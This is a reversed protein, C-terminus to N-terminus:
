FPWEVWERSRGDKFIMINLYISDICFINWLYNKLVESFHLGPIWVLKSQNNMSVVWPFRFNSSMIGIKRIKLVTSWSILYNMWTRVALSHRVFSRFLHKVLSSICIALLHLFLHEVECADLLHLNFGYHSAIVCVGFHSFVNKLQFDIIPLSASYCSNEFGASPTYVPVVVKLLQKTTDALIQGYFTCMRHGTVGSRPIYEVSIRIYLAM